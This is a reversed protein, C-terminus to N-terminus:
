INLVLDPIPLETFQFDGNKDIHSSAFSKQILKSGIIKNSDFIYDKNISRIM